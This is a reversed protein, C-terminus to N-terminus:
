IGTLIYPDSCSSFVTKVAIDGFVRSSGYLGIVISTKISEPVVGLRM